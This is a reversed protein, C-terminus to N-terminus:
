IEPECRDMGHWTMGHWARKWGDDDHGPATAEAPDIPSCSEGPDAPRVQSRPETGPRASLLLPSLLPCPLSPILPSPSLDSSLNCIANGLFYSCRGLQSSPSISPLRTLAAHTTENRAMAVAQDRVRDPRLAQLLRISDPPLPRHHTKEDQRAPANCSDDSSPGRRRRPHPDSPHSQM